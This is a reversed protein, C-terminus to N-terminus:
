TALSGFSGCRSSSRGTRELVRDLTAAFVGHDPMLPLMVLPPMARDAALHDLWAAIVADAELRDALPTGLPAYPHTWGTLVPAVGGRWRDIRAPFLGMLRGKDSWVLTAGVGEGFAKAAHLAFSPEYFVNPEVTRTALNRWEDAITALADITRWEVRFAPSLPAHM